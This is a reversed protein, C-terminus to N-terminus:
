LVSALLFPSSSIFIGSALLVVRTGEFGISRFIVPTYFNVGNIGTLNQGIMLGLGIFVRNRNGKWGLEGWIGFRSKKQGPIPASQRSIAESIEDLEANIYEHEPSLYRIFSLVTRARPTKGTLILFRPSEPLYLLAALFLLASPIIQM